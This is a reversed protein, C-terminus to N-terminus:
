PLAPVANLPRRGALVAQVNRATTKAMAERAETTASATHPTLVVSPLRALLRHSRADCTIEPECEYVDLGAGFIRRRAVASILAREDVVPGRATNVLIATPKMRALERRGILHRTKRTLPVHLSVADARALLVPLSVYRARYAREFALDRRQDTYLVRMGFGKAARRAVAKGIRGLGVVGLTKGAIGQGLLLDPAWGRFRGTRTFHDSEVIRRAVALLLAFAHDAVAETLIGPTNTVVIGRKACANRDINDYGVAYNAVIALQPGAADLVAEDVRDTLQTILAHAGRVFRFLDRRALTRPLPNVTVRVNRRRLLALGAEPIRRTVAIRFTM